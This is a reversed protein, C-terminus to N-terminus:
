RAKQMEELEAKGDAWAQRLDRFEINDALSRNNAWQRLGNACGGSTNPSSRLLM